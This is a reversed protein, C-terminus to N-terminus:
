VRKEEESRSEFGFGFGFRFLVPGLDPLVVHHDAAGRGAPEGPGLSHHLRDRLPSLLKKEGEMEENKRDDDKKPSFFL